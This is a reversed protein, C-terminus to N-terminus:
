HPAHVTFHLEIDASTELRAIPGLRWGDQTLRNPWILSLRSIEHTIGWGIPSGEPREIDNVVAIPLSQM